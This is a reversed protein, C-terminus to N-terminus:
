VVNSLVVLGFGLLLVLYSSISPILVVGFFMLVSLLAVIIGLYFLLSSSSRRRPM